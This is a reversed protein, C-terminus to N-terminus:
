EREPTAELPIILPGKFAQMIASAPLGHGLLKAMANMYQTVHRFYKKYGACLYNLGPEGDPTAMFRNKPCEGHCAFRYDCKRCYDPLSEEKALGFAQQAPSTIMAAPEDHQINGLKYQPYVFHDCSYVDGNHEVIAAKGCRPSFLCVGAPVQCWAALAWEFNMVHVRRVDNRVWEDFIAILFDGYAEPEVSQATVASAPDTESQGHRSLKPPIAHSLGFRIEQPRPAREVVPNFQIHRVGSEKLFRYIELPYKAVDRAVTVLVNFEVGHRKMCALGRMVDDFSSRGQKDPRYLDHVERPGDLSLGVLFRERALFECWTDDLLTGNTQLTNRIAKDGAFERQYAVAREFFDLGMLTPEGGQWTFEVEPTTQAAIYRQVYSRLVSDSMRFRQRAPFLSEKELYFCYSCDLNCLPGIPKAMLHLGQPSETSEQM